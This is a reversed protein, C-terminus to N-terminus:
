PAVKHLCCHLMCISWRHIRGLFLTCLFLQSSEFFRVSMTSSTLWWASRSCLCNQSARRCLVYGPLLDSPQFLRVPASFSQWRCVLHNWLTSPSVLSRPHFSWLCHCFRIHHLSQDVPTSLSLQLGESLSHTWPLPLQQLIRTSVPTRSRTRQLLKLTCFMLWRVLRIRCLQCTMSKSKGFVDTM